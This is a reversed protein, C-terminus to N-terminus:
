AIPRREAYGAAALASGSSRLWSALARLVRSSFYGPETRVSAFDQRARWGNARASYKAQRLVNSEFQVANM